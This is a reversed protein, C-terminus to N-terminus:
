PYPVRTSSWIQHLNRGSRKTESGYDIKCGRRHNVLFSQLWTKGQQWLFAAQFRVMLQFESLSTARLILSLWALGFDLANVVTWLSRHLQLQLLSPLALRLIQQVSGGLCQRLWCRRWQLLIHTALFCPQPRRPRRRSPHLDSEVQNLFTGWPSKMSPRTFSLDSALPYSDPQSDRYM